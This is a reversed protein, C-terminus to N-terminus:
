REERLVAERFEGIIANRGTIGDKLKRSLFDNAFIIWEPGLYKESNETALDSLIQRMEGRISIEESVDKDRIGLSNRIRKISPSDKLGKATTIDIFRGPDSSTSVMEVLSRSQKQEGREKVLGMTLLFDTAMFAEPSIGMDHVVRDYVSKASDGHMTGMISSGAKGTRMSQYLTRAEEGRVEGLIIASEGLRLSVRLAEDSRSKFDGDMREDVLMSQVKYGLNRMSKAPLEMTDEITLIRQSLPFEFMLASLMSSKGAGRSGCIIFSSRNEVLFSLLGAEKATITGNNILRTLTWPTISHKRIAVSDGNPSMPYGVVTARALGDFMDTELIPNSESYPLGSEKKLRSILNKVERNEVILNTRCRIHSNFGDVKNMTIHVRNRDCPADVYIDEIRDDSLLIDFIGLGLVYRHVSECLDNMSWNIQDDEPVSMCLHNRSSLVVSRGDMIGGNKRYEDRVANVASNLAETVKRGYTYEKPILNYELEGDETIGICVDGDPMSYTEIVELLDRSGVMWCDSFTPKVMGHYRSMSEIHDFLARTTESEKVDPSGRFLMPIKQKEPEAVETIEDKRINVSVVPEDFVDSTAYLVRPM